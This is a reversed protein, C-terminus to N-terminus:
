GHADTSLLLPLRREAAKTLPDGCEYTEPDSLVARNM